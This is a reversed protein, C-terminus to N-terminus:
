IKKSAGAEGFALRPRGSYNKATRTRLIQGALTGGKQAKIKLKQAIVERKESKPQPQSKNM